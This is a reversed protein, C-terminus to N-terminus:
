EAPEAPAGADGVTVDMVIASHDSGPVELVRFTDVEIGAVFAHDIRLLRPAGSWPGWTRLPRTGAAEAVAVAADTFQSNIRWYAPWSPTSNFDGLLVRQACPEAALHAELARLQRPRQWFSLKPVLLHPAMLHMAVVHMPAQLEPWESPDLVASHAARWPMPVIAVRAPRRMGIRVGFGDGVPGLTGYPMVENLVHAQRPAVEQLSVVDVELRRVIEAFAEPDAAGSWLNASM